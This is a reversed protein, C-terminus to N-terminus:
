GQQVVIPRYEFVMMYRGKEPLTTVMDSILFIMFLSDRIYALYFRIKNCRNINPHHLFVVAINEVVHLLSVVSLEPAEDYVHDEVCVHTLM